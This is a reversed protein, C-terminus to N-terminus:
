NSSMSRVVRAIGGAAEWTAALPLYALWRDNSKYSLEQLNNAMVYISHNPITITNTLM